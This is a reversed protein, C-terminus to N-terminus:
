AIAADGVHDGADSIDDDAYGGSRMKTLMVSRDFIRLKQRIVCLLYWLCAICTSWMLVITTAMVMIM